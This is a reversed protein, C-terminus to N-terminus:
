SLIMVLVVSILTIHIKVALKALIRRRIGITILLTVHACVRIWKMGRIMVANLVFRIALMIHMQIM